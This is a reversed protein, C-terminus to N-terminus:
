VERASEKALRWATTPSCGGLMKALGRVGGPELGARWQGIVAPVDVGVLAASPKGLVKGRARAAKLGDVTRESIISREFEAFAAMVQLIMKGCPNSQRTDIGQSSCIIAVGMRALKEVLGVVNLLSRGLRDLKVVVVAEVGGEACQALMADLGPRAAKAGSLVDSYEGLSTWGQRAVYGTLELRQPELTQDDTSVRLYTVINM